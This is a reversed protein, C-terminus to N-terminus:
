CISRLKSDNDIIKILTGNYNEVINVNDSLGGAPERLSLVFTENGEVVRDDTIRVTLCTKAMGQQIRVNYNTLPVYDSDDICAFTCILLNNM